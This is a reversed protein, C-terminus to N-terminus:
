ARCRRRGAGGRLPLQVADAERHLSEGGPGLLDSDCAGADRQRRAPPLRNASQAQVWPAYVFEIFMFPLLVLMFIIGSLLVVISFGRGLDSEFVIDGFGLTSMTSLVWYLGSLWSYDRGEYVMVLHFAISYTVVLAAFGILFNSLALIRLRVTPGLKRLRDLKLM